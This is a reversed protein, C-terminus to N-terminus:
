FEGDVKYVVVEVDDWTLGDPPRWPGHDTKGQIGSSLSLLYSGFLIIPVLIGYDYILAGPIYVMWAIKGRIWKM